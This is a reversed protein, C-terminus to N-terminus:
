LADEIEGNFLGEHQLKELFDVSDAHLYEDVREIVPLDYVLQQNPASVVASLCAYGAASSLLTLVIAAAWWYRKRNAVTAKQETVDEDARLAVIEVTSRTFNEDVDSRQLVDLADWARQMDALRQRYMEDDALRREVRSSEVPDLEGDLYAVLEEDMTSLDGGGNAAYDANM